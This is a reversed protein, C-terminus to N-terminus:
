RKLRIYSDGIVIDDWYRFEDIAVGGERDVQDGIEFSNLGDSDTTGASCRNEIASPAVGNGDALTILNGNVRVNILGNRQGLDSLQVDMELSYWRDFKLYGAGTNAYYGQQDLCRGNNGSDILVVLQMSSGGNSHTSLIVDWDSNGSSSLHKLYYLKRQIDAGSSLNGGNNHFMVYGRIHFHKLGPSKFNKVLAVNIDQDSTISAPITYHLQASYLGSHVFSMNNNPTVGCQASGGPMSCVLGYGYASTWASLDGAEFGDQFIDGGSQSQSQDFGGALTARHGEPNEVSVSVAEAANTVRMVAQIQTATKVTVTPASLTGLLVLSGALLNSGTITV